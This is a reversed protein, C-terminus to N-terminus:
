ERQGRGAAQVVIRRLRLCEPVQADGIPMDAAIGLGIFVVLLSEAQEAADTVTAAFGDCKANKALDLYEGAAVGAGELEEACGDVDVSLEIVAPAFCDDGNV